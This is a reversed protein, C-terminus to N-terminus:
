VTLSCSAYYMLHPDQEVLPLAAYKPDHRLDPIEFILEPTNIAHACLSVERPISVVNPGFVNGYSSKIYTVKDSVLSVCAADVKFVETALQTLQNYM